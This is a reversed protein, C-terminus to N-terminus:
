VELVVKIAGDDKSSALDFGRQAEDLSLVHTVMAGVEVKGSSVLDVATQIDKANYMNSGFFTLHRDILRNPPFQVPKDFLAVFMIRGDLATVTLAEDLLPPVGVTLFVVDVPKGGTIELIKESLPGGGGLLTDTAGLSRKAVDLCHEELDVAIIPKAGISGATATIMMGIAGAGLVLVSDDASVSVRDVMHVAVALPEITTGDVYSVHDPLHYLSREPAVIYEGLGGSWKETGLVLKTQCMNHRGTRCWECEGCNWQPDVFVRDGVKFGSVEPGAEVIDGTVEHGLVSPPKRFPHTGKFAHIESGCVGVAKVQILVQDAGTLVPREVDTITLKGVSELLAAKM